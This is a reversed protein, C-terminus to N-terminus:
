DRPKKSILVPIESIHAPPLAPRQPATLLCDPMVRQARGAASIGNAEQSGRPGERSPSYPKKRAFLEKESEERSM